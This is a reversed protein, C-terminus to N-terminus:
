EGTGLRVRVRHKILHKELPIRADEMRRGDM